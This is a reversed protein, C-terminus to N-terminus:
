RASISISNIDINDMLDIHYVKGYRGTKICDEDTIDYSLKKGYNNECVMTMNNDHNYLFIDISDTYIDYDYTGNGLIINHNSCEALVVYNNNVHNLIKFDKQKMINYEDSLKYTKGEKLLVDDWGIVNNKKLLWTVYARNTYGADLTYIAHSIDFVYDMGINDLIGADIADQMTDVDDQYFSDADKVSYTGVINDFAFIVTFLAAMVVNFVIFLKKNKIRRGIIVIVASIILAVGWSGFYAPIYGVFWEIERQYKVSIAILVSPLAILAVGFWIMGTLNKKEKDKLYLVIFLFAAFFLIYTIINSIGINERIFEIWFKADAQFFDKVAAGFGIAGSCQKVFTTVIKGLSMNVTAGDYNGSALHRVLLNFVVWFIMIIIQPLGTKIAKWFNKRLYDWGDICILAIIFLVCLIYSVEYLGLSIFWSICSLVQFIVKGTKRYKIYCLVACLVFLLCFQVLGHFAYVGTYYTARFSIVAPFIVVCLYSLPKSDTLEKVIASLFLADFFIAAVIMGKYVVLPLYCLVYDCYFSFILIRGNVTAWRKIDGLVIDTVTVDNSIAFGRDVHTWMDDFMYGSQIVIKFCLLYLVAIGAWILYKGYKELKSGIM